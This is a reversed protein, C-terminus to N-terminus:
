YRKKKKDRHKGYIYGGAAGVVGGIVAGKVRNHDGAMVAGLVAGSGAGIATGKAASSWGKKKKVTTSQAPYSSRSTYSKHSSVASKTSSNHTTPYTAVPQSTYTSDTYNNYMSTDASNTFDAAVRKKQTFLLVVFVAVLIIPLAITIIKKANM